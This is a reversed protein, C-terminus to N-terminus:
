KSSLYEITALSLTEADKFRDEPTSGLISIIIPHSIGADFAIVLNGGALDTTGTKSAILTTMKEVDINTNRSGMNAGEMSIIKIEPYKTATFVNPYKDIAYAFMKAIDKSSGYAGGLTKNVDLGTENLFYTTHLNLERAINNMEGVFDINKVPGGNEDDVRSVAEAISTVGNNSSSVLAYKMLDVLNWWNGSFKVAREADIKEAIRLASVSTMVKTISALPLQANGNKTYIFKDTTTDYVAVSVARIPLKEFLDTRIPSKETNVSGFSINFYLFSVAISTTIFGFICFLVMISEPNIIINKIKKFFQLFM